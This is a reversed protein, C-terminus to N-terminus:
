FDALLDYTHQVCFLRTDVTDCLQQSSLDEGADPVQKSTYVTHRLFTEVKLNDTIKALRLRNESKKCQQFAHSIQYLFGYSM